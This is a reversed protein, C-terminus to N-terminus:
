FLRLQGPRTCQRIMDCCQFLRKSAYIPSLDPRPDVKPVKDTRILHECADLMNETEPFRLDSADGVEDPCCPLLLLGMVAGENLTMTGPSVSTRLRRGDHPATMAIKTRPPSSLEWMLYNWVWIPYSATVHGHHPDKEHWEM